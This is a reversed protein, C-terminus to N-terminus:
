EQLKRDAEQLKGQAQKEEAELQIRVDRLSKAEQRHVLLSTEVASEEPVWQTLEPRRQLIVQRSTELQACEIELAARGQPSKTTLESRLIGLRTQWSDRLIK